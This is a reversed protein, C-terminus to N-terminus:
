HRVPYLTEGGAPPDLRAPPLRRRRPAAVGPRVPPPDILAKGLGSPAPVAPTRATLPASTRARRPMEGSGAGAGALAPEGVAAWKRISIGLTSPGPTIRATTSCAEASPMVTFRTEWPCRRSAAPRPGLQGLHRLDPRVAAELHRQEDSRALFPVDSTAPGTRRRRPGPGPQDPPHPLEPVRDLSTSRPPRLVPDPSKQDGVAAQQLQHGVICASPRSGSDTTHFTDTM